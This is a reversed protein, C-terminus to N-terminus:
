KIIILDNLNNASISIKHINQQKLELDDITSINPIDTNSRTM